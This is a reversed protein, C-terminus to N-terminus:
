RLGRGNGRLPARADVAVSAATGALTQMAQGNQPTSNEREHWALGMLLHALKAATFDAHHLGAIPALEMVDCGAIRGQAAVRELIFHAEKWMLGGPSPTGTAPMLSPDFADVDFSIYINKPFDEPLPKEPLGVRSLFYSDYHTVGYIRRAEIEEPSIERASFQVLPLGLDLVARRMVSAHSFPDGEYENRLDAHADFQVVGIDQGLAKFARLAGLTATHEGGLMVPIAGANLCELVVSRIRELVDKAPGDCEIPDHTYIGGRGPAFDGDIAELMQSAEIIADPGKRAGRGWSVSREFPVPIIWFMAEGASAPAYESELFGKGM